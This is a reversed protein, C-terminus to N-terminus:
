PLATHRSRSRAPGPRGSRRQTAITMMLNTSQTLGVGQRVRLSHKIAKTLRGSWAAPTYTNAPSAWPATEVWSSHRTTGQGWSGRGRVAEARAGCWGAEVNHHLQVEINLQCGAVSCVSGHSCLSFFLFGVLGSTHGYTNYTRQPCANKMQKPPHCVSSGREAGSAARVAASGPPGTLLCSARGELDCSVNWHYGARHRAYRRLERRWM